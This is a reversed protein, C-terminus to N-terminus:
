NIHEGDATYQWNYGSQATAYKDITHVIVYNVYDQSVALFADKIAKCKVLCNKEIFEGSLTRITKYVTFDSKDDVLEYEINRLKDNRYIGYETSESMKCIWHGRMCYPEKCDVAEWNMEM